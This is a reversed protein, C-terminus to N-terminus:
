SHHAFWAKAPARFLIWVILAFIVCHIVGKEVSNLFGIVVHSAIWCLTAWRAWNHRLFLFVGCAIGLLRVLLVIVNMIEFVQPPKLASFNTAIGGVGMAILVLSLVTISLPRKIM